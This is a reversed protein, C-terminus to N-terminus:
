HNYTFVKCQVIFKKRNRLTERMKIHDKNKKKRFIITSLAVKEVCKCNPQVMIILLRYTEQKLSISVISRQQNFTSIQYCIITINRVMITKINSNTINLRPHRM